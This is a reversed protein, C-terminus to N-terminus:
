SNSGDDRDVQRYLIVAPAGPAEPIGTMKLEDPSIPQWEDAGVHRLHGVAACLFLGFVVALFRRCSVRSRRSARFPHGFRADPRLPVRATGRRSPQDRVM